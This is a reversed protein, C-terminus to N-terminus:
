HRQQDGGHAFRASENRRGRKASSKRPRSRRRTEHGFPNTLHMQDLPRLGSEEVLADLEADPLPPSSDYTGATPVPEGDPGFAIVAGFAVQLQHKKLVIYATLHEMDDPSPQARVNRAGIARVAARCLVAIAIRACRTGLRFVPTFFAPNLM